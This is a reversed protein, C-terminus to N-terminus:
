SIQSIIELKTRQIDTLIESFDDSSFFKVEQLLAAQKKAFKL